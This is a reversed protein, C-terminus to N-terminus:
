GSARAWACADVCFTVRNTTAAGWLSVSVRLVSATFLYSILYPGAPIASIEFDESPRITVTETISETNQVVSDPKLVSIRVDEPRGRPFVIAGVACTSDRPEM